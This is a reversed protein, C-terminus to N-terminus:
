GECRCFLVFSAAGGVVGAVGREALERVAWADGELSTGGRWGQKGISCAGVSCANSLPERIDYRETGM